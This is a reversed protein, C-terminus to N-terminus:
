DAFIDAEYLLRQLDYCICLSHGDYVKGLSLRAFTGREGQRGAPSEAVTEPHILHGQPM